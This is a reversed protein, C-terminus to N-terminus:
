LYLRCYCSKCIKIEPDSGRLNYWQEKGTISHKSSHKKGCKACERKIKKM